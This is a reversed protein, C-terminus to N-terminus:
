VRRRECMCMFVPKNCGRCWGCSQHMIQGAKYCNVREMDDQVPKRGVHKIFQKVTIKGRKM